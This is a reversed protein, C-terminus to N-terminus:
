MCKMRQRQTCASLGKRLFLCGAGANDSHALVVLTISHKEKGKLLDFVRPLLGFCLLKGYGTPLSVFM